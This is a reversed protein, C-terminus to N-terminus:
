RRRARSAARRSVCTSASDFFRFPLEVGRSIGIRPSTGVQPPRESTPARRLALHGRLLSRRDDALGLALAQSLRGPGSAVAREPADGPLGRRRRMWGTGEVPELARFLVAAGSGEPECVVNACLHIGYSRYVYMRGPPGFMAGNRRTPGNHSHSAPDSGDGLYAEVEVLRGIARSGDPLRRILYAGVLERAM